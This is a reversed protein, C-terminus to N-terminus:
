KVWIMNEQTLKNEGNYRYATLNGNKAISFDLCCIHEGLLNPRGDLWYHGWFVPKSDNYWDFSTHEKEPAYDPLHEPYNICFEKLGLKAPNKWWKVRFENRQNGEFDEYSADKVELEPGKLTEEIASYIPTGSNILGSFDLGLSHNDKLHLKLMKINKSNWCAHVARFNENEYFLPLTKFWTLYEAWLSEKNLFAEHTKTHQLINKINHSRCYDGNVNRTHFCLANYEHNGLIAVANEEEVMSKVIQLTRLIEPGRDIYDGLFIAKRQPHKYGDGKKKYGMKELLRELPQAHGHIDGIIDFMVFKSKLKKQLHSPIEVTPLYLKILQVKGLVSVSIPEASTCGM